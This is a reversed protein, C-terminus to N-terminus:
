YGKVGQIWTWEGPAHEIFTSHMVLVSDPIQGERTSIFLQECSMNSLFVDAASQISVVACYAVAYKLTM